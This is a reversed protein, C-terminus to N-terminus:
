FESFVHDHQVGMLPLEAENIQENKRKWEGSLLIESRQADEMNM